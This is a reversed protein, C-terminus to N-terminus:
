GCKGVLKRLAHYLGTKHGSHVAPLDVNFSSEYGTGTRRMGRIIEDQIEAHQEQRQKEKQLMVLDYINGGNRKYVLLKTM